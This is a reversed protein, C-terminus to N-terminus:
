TSLMFTGSDLAVKTRPPVFSIRTLGIFKKRMELNVGGINLWSLILVM